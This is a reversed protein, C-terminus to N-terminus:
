TSDKRRIWNAATLIALRQGGAVIHVCHQNSYIVTAEYWEETVEHTKRNYRLRKVEVLDGSEYLTMM